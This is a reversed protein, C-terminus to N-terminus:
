PRWMSEGAHSNFYILKFELLFKGFAINFSLLILGKNSKYFIM